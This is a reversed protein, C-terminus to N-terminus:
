ILLFAYGVLMFLYSHWFPGKSPKKTLETSNQLSILNSSFFSWLLTLLLRVPVCPGIPGCPIWPIGPKTPGCPGDPIVWSFAVFTYKTWFELPGTTGPPVTAKTGAKHSGPSTTYFPPYLRKPVSSPSFAVIIVNTSWGISFGIGSAVCPNPHTVNTVALSLEVVNCSLTNARQKSM